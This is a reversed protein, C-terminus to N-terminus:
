KSAESLSKDHSFLMSLYSVSNRYTGTIDGSMTYAVTSIHVDKPLLNLLVMMPGYACDNLDMKQRYRTLRIPDVNKIQSAIGHDLQAIWKRTQSNLPFPLYDYDPGYHTFDGSIVLLTNENLLPRILEGALKFESEDLLGVLIPILRWDDQLMRQLFPLQLEISHEMEHAHPHSSVIPSQRLQQIGPQDLLVNGLPTQYGDVDMISLGPFGIHHAPGIVVVRKFPQGRIAQYAAAATAASYTYGAHPVILARVRTGPQQRYAATEQDLLTDILHTLREPDGPYWAGAKIAPRLTLNTNSAEVTAAHVNLNIFLLAIFLHRVSWM